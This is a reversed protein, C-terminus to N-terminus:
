NSSIRVDACHVQQILKIGTSFLWLPMRSLSFRSSFLNGGCLRSAPLSRENPPRFCLLFPVRLDALDCCSVEQGRAKVCLFAFATITIQCFDCVASVKFDCIPMMHSFFFVSKSNIAGCILAFM